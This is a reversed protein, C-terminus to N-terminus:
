VAAFRPNTRWVSYHNTGRPALAIEPGTFICPPLPKNVEYCCIEWRGRIIGRAPYDLWTGTRRIEIEQRRPLWFRGEILGNELVVSVDELEKDKLAARTFSFAMRVVEGIEKDIYVAGRGRSGIMRRGFAFRTCRSPALVLASRFRTAFPTTTNAPTGAASLPHPVDQVEDGEGLRIINPFNNQVIGLHDRHYNIDTPLLLTDRRGAIRQKSLNPAHWYVELALEDAKVIKPPETFGEGVQALFDSLRSRNRSLSALATDAIQRARRETAQEVLARARVDNWEQRQFEAPAHLSAIPLGCALVLGM